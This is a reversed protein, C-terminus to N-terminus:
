LLIEECKKELRGFIFDEMIMGIIIIVVLGAYTGPTDMYVRKEFIFWGLGGFPGIAGFVMESSILARWARSWGIKLGSVIHLLSLPILVYYFIQWINMGFNKSVEIYENDVSRFGTKMNITMPWLVSHVIIVLIAKEGVGFWIIVLPLLAIGPIPHLIGIITDLLSSFNKFFYDFFSLLVSLVIGILLGKLIIIFSFGIQMLLDGKTLSIGLSKIIQEISPFIQRAYVNSYYTVEWIIIFFGIWLFRRIYLKKM